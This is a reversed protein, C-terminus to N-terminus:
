KEPISAWSYLAAWSKKKVKGGFGKLLCQFIIVTVLINIVIKRLCVFILKKLVFQIM